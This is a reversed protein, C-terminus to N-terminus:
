SAPMHASSKCARSSTRTCCKLRQSGTSLLNNAKQVLIALLKSGREQSLTTDESCCLDIVPFRGPLRLFSPTGKLTVSMESNLGPSNIASTCGM